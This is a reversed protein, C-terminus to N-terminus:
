AHLSQLTRPSSPPRFSLQTYTLHTSLNLLLQSSLVRHAPPLNITVLKQSLGNLSQHVLKSCSLVSNVKNLLYCVSNQIHQCFLSTFFSCTVQLNKRLSNAFFSKISCICVKSQSHTSQIFGNNFVINRHYSNKPIYNSMQINNLNPSYRDLKSQVTSTKWTSNNLDAHGQSQTITHRKRQVTESCTITIYDTIRNDTIASYNSHNRSINGYQDTGCLPLGPCLAASDTDM